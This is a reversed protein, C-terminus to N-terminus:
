NGCKAIELIYVGPFSVKFYENAENGPLTVARGRFPAVRAVVAEFSRLCMLRMGRMGLSGSAHM